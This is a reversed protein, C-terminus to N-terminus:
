NFHRQIYEVVKPGELKDTAPNTRVYFDKNDLYCPDRSKLCKIKLLYKKDVEFLDYDILPYFGEGISQKMIDKLHRLYKDKNRKFLKELEIDIGCINGNDEVGVYLTGGNTNLFAVITKLVMLELYKAKQNTKKDFSLSEKFERERNEGKRIEAKVKDSLSLVSLDEILQNAKDNLLDINQPNLSLETSIDDIISTLMEIKDNMAVIKDQDKLTPVAIIAEEMLSQKSISPITAGRLLTKRIARGFDSAYFLAAYKNNIISKNLVLQFYNQHKMTTQDLEYHIKSEGIKPFYIANEKENFTQKTRGLNIEITVDPLFYQKYSKYGSQLKDFEKKFKFNDIGRFKAYDIFLGQEINDTSTKKLFNVIMENISDPDILEGLFLKESNNKSIITIIPRINTFPLINQPPYISANIYINKESLFNRFRNGIELWLLPAITFVGYGDETLSNALNYIKLWNEEVKLKNNLTVRRGGFPLDGVIFDYEHPADEDQINNLSFSENSLSKFENFLGWKEVRGLYSPSERNYDDVSLQEPPGVYISKHPSVKKFLSIIFQNTINTQDM